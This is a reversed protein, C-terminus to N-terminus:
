NFIARLDVQVLRQLVQLEFRNSIVVRYIEFRLDLLNKVRAEAYIM